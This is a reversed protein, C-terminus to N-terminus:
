ITSFAPLDVGRLEVMTGPPGCEIDSYIGPISFISHSVEFNISASVTGSTAVIGRTGPGPCPITRSLNPIFIQSPLQLKANFEGNQDTETGAFSYEWDAFGVGKFTVTSNPPFTAGTIQILKGPVPLSESLTIQPAAGPIIQALEGKVPSTDEEIVGVGGQLSKHHHTYM